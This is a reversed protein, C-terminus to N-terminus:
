RNAKLIDLTEKAKQNAPDLELIKQNCEIVKANDQVIFYYNSLYDYATILMKSMNGNENRASMIAIAQEFYPRALGTMKETKSYEIADPISNSNAMWYPGLYSDPIIETLKTFAERAKGLYFNMEETAATTEEETTATNIKEMCGAAGQYAALGCYYYDSSSPSEATEFYKAYADLASRYDKLNDYATALERYVEESNTGEMELAKKLAAIGKEPQKTKLYTRGLTMYDLYIHKEAPVTQMFQEMLSIAEDYNELEYNNYAKLRLMIFNDPLQKMVEEIKGLSEKYQKTFYLLQAYNAHKEMPVGPISIFKKYAEIAKGYFGTTYNIDGIEAYAPIYEPDLAVLRDLYDLSLKSNINKYIRALKLYSVKNNPNFGLGSEYRASAEGVKGQKMYMDGEVNYIGSYKKDIKRAKELAEQAKLNNGANVYVEAIATQVSPDKKAFGNAKKFLDEAVKANGKSLEVKGQGIYGLPYSEDTAVAKDYYSLAQAVDDQEYSIEGLYYYNEAQDRPSLDRLGTLFIKAADYLGARYYDIGADNSGAFTSLSFFLLAGALGYIKKCNM